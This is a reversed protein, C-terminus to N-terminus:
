GKQMIDHTGRTVDFRDPESDIHLILGDKGYLDKLSSAMQQARKRLTPHVFRTTRLEVLYTIARLDGSLRIPTRFGMAYYYQADEKSLGLRVVADAQREILTEAEARLDAPLEDLYWSEFGIRASLLPMRTAVARHRQLDRFSGFDLPFSFEVTGADRIAYPLEIKMPREALAKRYGALRARDVHDVFSFDQIQEDFYTYDKGIMGLYEETAPWREATFSNPYAELLVQEIADAIDRIERLPHHRLIPLRDAFQRLTSVWVLNTSAGAPLFARMTDFARAKIAKEWIKEEESEKRPYRKKLEAIMRELGKLYFTRWTELISGSEDNGVPDIFRQHSFDVYRTSVEQGNYLPFDQIAKAALMSVGEIFISASGLDGISKHGYGVYFTSMFKDSGKEALIRLHNRIGNPNRSHLAGLMAQSEQSIVPATDLALVEGGGPLPRSVHALEDLNKM